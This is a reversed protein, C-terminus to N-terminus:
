FYKFMVAIKLVIRHCSYINRKISVNFKKNAENTFELLKKEYTTKVSSRINEKMKQLQYDMREKMTERTHKFIPDIKQKETRFFENM